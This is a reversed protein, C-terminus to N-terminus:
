LQVNVLTGAITHAVSYVGPGTATHAECTFAGSFETSTTFTRTTSTLYYGVSPLQNMTYVVGNSGGDYMFDYVSNPYGTPKRLKIELVEPGSSPQPTTTLSLILYDLEAQTSTTQTLLCNRTQGDLTYSALNRAAAADKKSCSAFGALLVLALLYALPQFSHRM